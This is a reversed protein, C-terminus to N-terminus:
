PLDKLCDWLRHGIPGMVVSWVRANIQGGARVRVVRETLGSFQNWIKNNTSDWVLSWAHMNVNNGYRTM